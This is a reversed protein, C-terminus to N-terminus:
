QCSKKIFASKVAICSPLESILIPAIVEIFRYTTERSQEGLAENFDADLHNAIDEWEAMPPGYLALAPGFLCTVKADHAASLLTDIEAIAEKADAGLRERDKRAEPLREILVDLADRIKREEKERRRAATKYDIFVLYSSLRSALDAISAPAPLSGSQFVDRERLIKMLFDPAITNAPRRRASFQPYPSERTAGVDNM